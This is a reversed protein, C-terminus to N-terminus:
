SLLVGIVTFVAGAALIVALAGAIIRASLSTKNKSDKM